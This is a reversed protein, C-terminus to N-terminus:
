TKFSCCVNLTHSQWCRHAYIMILRGEVTPLLPHVRNTQGDTVHRRNELCLFAMFVELKASVYRQVLTVLPAFKLNLPWLDLNIWESCSVHSKCGLNPSSKFLGRDFGEVGQLPFNWHCGGIKPMKCCSVTHRYTPIDTHRYTPIGTHRYESSSSTASRKESCCVFVSFKHTIMHTSHVSSWKPRPKVYISGSRVIINHM